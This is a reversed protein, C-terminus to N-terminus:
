LLWSTKKLLAAGWVTLGLITWQLPEEKGSAPSQGSWIEYPDKDAWEVQRWCGKPHCCSQQWPTGCAFKKFLCRRMEQLMQTESLCLPVAHRWRLPMLLLTGTLLCGFFHHTHLQFLAAAFLTIIRNALLPLSDALFLMLARNNWGM